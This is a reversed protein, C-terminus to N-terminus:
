EKPREKPRTMQLLHTMGLIFGLVAGCATLWPKTGWKGDAWFGALAPLVMELSVTFINSVWQWAVVM